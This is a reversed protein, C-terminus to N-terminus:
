EDLLWSRPAEFTRRVGVSGFIYDLGDSRITYDAGIDFRWNDSHTWDFKVGITHADFSGLDSDQTRYRPIPDVAELELDYYQSASQDYYRYRLRLHLVDPVLTQYLAPEVSYGTAEWSDFSYRGSLQVATNEWLLRRIRGFVAGRNRHGPFAERVEFGEADNEFPFPPETGAEEIVVGNFATELFGTQYSNTVGIEGFTRPDLIQHWKLTTTLTHRDDNGEDESGDFRIVDITDYYYNASLDITTNGSLLDSSFNGGIGFSYYDREFSGSVFGGVRRDASIEYRVGTDLGFYYDGSAGSQQPYDDLRGISASSVIDFSFLGWAAMRDTVNYDAIFITEIVSSEEDLFPNGDASDGNEYYGVRLGLSGAGAEGSGSFTVPPTMLPLSTAEKEDGAEEVAVEVGAASPLVVALALLFASM